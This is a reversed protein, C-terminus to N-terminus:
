HHAPTYDCLFSPANSPYTMLILSIYPQMRLAIESTYGEFAYAKEHDISLSGYARGEHSVPIALVSRYSKNRSQSWRENNRIDDVSMIGNSEIAEWSVLDNFSYTVGIRRGKMSRAVVKMVGSHSSKGTRQTKRSTCASFDLLNVCVEEHACGIAEAIAEAACELIQERTHRLTEEDLEQVLFDGILRDHITDIATSIRIKRWRWKPDTKGTLVKLNARLKDAFRLITAALFPAWGQGIAHWVFGAWSRSQHDARMIPAMTVVGLAVLTTILIAVDVGTKPWAFFFKFFRHARALRLRAWERYTLPKENVAIM